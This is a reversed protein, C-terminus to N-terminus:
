SGDGDSPSQTAKAVDSGAAGLQQDVSNLESDVAAAGSPENAAGPNGAATPSSTSQAGGAGSGGAAAAKEGCGALLAACLLAGVVATGVTKIM